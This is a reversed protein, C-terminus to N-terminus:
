RKVVKWNKIHIKTYIKCLIKIPLIYVSSENIYTMSKLSIILHSRLKISHIFTSINLSWILTYTWNHQMITSCTIELRRWTYKPVDKTGYRYAQRLSYTISKKNMFQRQVFLLFISSKHCLANRFSNSLKRHM